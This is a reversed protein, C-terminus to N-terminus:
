TQEAIITNANLVIPATIKGTFDIKLETLNINNLTFNVEALGRYSKTELSIHYNYTISNKQIVSARFQATTQDLSM